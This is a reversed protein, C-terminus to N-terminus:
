VVRVLMLIVCFRLYFRARGKERERVIPEVVIVIEIDIQQISQRGRHHTMRNETKRKLM